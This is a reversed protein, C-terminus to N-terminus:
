IDRTTKLLPGSIQAISLVLDIYDLEICNFNNERRDTLNGMHGPSMEGAPACRTMTYTAICHM